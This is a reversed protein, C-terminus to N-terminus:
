LGIAQDPFVIKAVNDPIGHRRLVDQGAVLADAQFSPPGPAALGQQGTSCGLCGPRAARPGPGRHGPGPGLGRGRATPGPARPGSARAGLIKLNRAFDSVYRVCGRWMGGVGVRTGRSSSRGVLDQRAGLGGLKWASVRRAPWPTRRWRSFSLSWETPIAVGVASGRSRFCSM